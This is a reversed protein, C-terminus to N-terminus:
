SSTWSRHRLPMLECCEMGPVNSAIPQFEGRFEVPARPKMDYMDLHPPGGHLFVMIVSKGSTPTTNAAARRRMLDAMSLGGVSLAGVRLFDRRSVGDCYRRRRGFFTLM